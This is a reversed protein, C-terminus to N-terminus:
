NCLQASWRGAREGRACMFQHWHGAIRWEGTQAHQKLEAFTRKGSVSDDLYGHEEIRVAMFRVAPPKLFPRGRWQGKSIIIEASPRGEQGEPHTGLLAAAAEGITAYNTTYLPDTTKGRPRAIWDRFHERMYTTLREPRPQQIQNLGEFCERVAQMGFMTDSADLTGRYQGNVLVSYRRPGAADTDQELVRAGMCDTTGIRAEGIQTFSGNIAISATAADVQIDFAGEYRPSTPLCGSAIEAKLTNAGVPLELCIQGVRAQAQTAMMSAALAALAARYAIKRHTM